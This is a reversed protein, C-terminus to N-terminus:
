RAKWAHHQQVSLRWPPNDLCLRQCWELTAPHMRGADHAPSVLYHLAQVPTKPVAQGHARVVKYEHAYRQRLTHDATKPSVTIWDALFSDLHEQVCSGACSGDKMPLTMTGNSEVAVKCGRDHFHKFFTQDAQLAPEGGTLVLWPTPWWECSGLQRGEPPLPLGRAIAVAQACWHGLEDLSVHRGSTFETDCRFGGPSRPGPEMDCALNCGALRVFVSPEGARLGEGQLSYFCENVIYTGGAM